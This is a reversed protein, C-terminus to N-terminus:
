KFFYIDGNFINSFIYFFFNLAKRCTTEYSFNRPLNLVHGFFAITMSRSTMSSGTYKKLLVKVFRTQEGLRKLNEITERCTAELADPDDPDETDEAVSTERNNECARNDTVAHLDDVNQDERESPNAMDSGVGSDGENAEM